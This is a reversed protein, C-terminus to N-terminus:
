SAKKQQEDLMDHVVKLVASMDDKICAVEEKLDRIQAAYRWLEANERLLKDLEVKLDGLATQAATNRSITRALREITDTLTIAM